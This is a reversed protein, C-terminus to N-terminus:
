DGNGAVMVNEEWCCSMKMVEGERRNRKEKERREEKRKRKGRKGFGEVVRRKGRICM